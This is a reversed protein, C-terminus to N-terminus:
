KISCRSVSWATWQRGYQSIGAYPKSGLEKDKHCPVFPMLAVGPTWRCQLSFKLVKKHAGGSWSKGGIDDGLLFICPSIIFSLGGHTKEYHAAEYIWRHIM